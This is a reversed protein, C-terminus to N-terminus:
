VRNHSHITLGLTKRHARLSNVRLFSLAFIICEYSIFFRWITLANFLCVKKGQNGRWYTQLHLTHAVIFVFVFSYTVWSFLFMSCLPKYKLKPAQLGLGFNSDGPVM